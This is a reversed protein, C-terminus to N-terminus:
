LLAVMSITEFGVRSEIVVWPTLATLVLTGLTIVRSGTLRWAAATLFGVVALGFIAAPLREVAVTLPLVRLLGSLAYIYVPNKYEGFAEFFLPVHIGHEDVGFHAVAWANYGISAEDVYLGPPSGSLDVLNRVVVLVACVAFAGIWIWRRDRGTGAKPDGM